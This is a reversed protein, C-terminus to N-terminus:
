AILQLMTIHRVKDAKIIKQVRSFPLLSKGPEKVLVVPERKERKKPGADKSEPHPDDTGNPRETNANLPEVTTEVDEIGQDVVDDNIEEFEADIEQTELQTEDDSLNSSMERHRNRAFQNRYKHECGGEILNPISGSFPFDCLSQRWLSCEELILQSLGVNTFNSSGLNSSIVHM